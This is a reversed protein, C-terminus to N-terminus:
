GDGTFTGRIYDHYQPSANLSDRLAGLFYDADGGSIIENVM